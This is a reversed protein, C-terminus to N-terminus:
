ASPAPNNDISPKASLGFEMQLEGGKYAYTITQGGEGAYSKATLGKEIAASYDM